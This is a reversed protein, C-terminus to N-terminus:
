ESRFGGGLARVLAVDQTLARSQLDTLARQNALFNDEASLVEIYTSLGGQYRQQAIRWADKAAQVADATDSLQPGLARQSMAADAVGHLAETVTQQYNAVAEEYEARAGRYQARLRGGNFIPLSIAPGVSGIESGAKTLQGLGLSQLGIFANLNVNPYFAAQAVDIRRSAAEARLRAAVVDPRRGLLNLALTDPLGLPRALNMQPRSITRGRDPSKGMLAALQNRQLEIKEALSKVEARSSATRAEAQRVSGLTELGNDYRQRFLTATQSRVATAAIATDQAAFLRALEAYASTIATTLVLRAQAAEAAAADRESTAAALAARNRGWFDLEWSFDLTSRAYGHMGSPLMARPTLYNYSQKASSIDANASVQPLTDADSSDLNAAAQKLRADAVALSPASVLAERILSDLQPDGYATWWDDAPWASANQPLNDAWGAAPAQIEPLAPHAPLQACGALALTCALVLLGSGQAIRPLHM